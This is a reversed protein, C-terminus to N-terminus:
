DIHRGTRGMRAVYGVWIIRRSKIMRIMSPSCYVNHQEENHLKRWGLIVEDKKLGFIRTLLRFSLSTPIRISQTKLSYCDHICKM